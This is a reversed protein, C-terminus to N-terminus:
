SWDCDNGTYVIGCITSEAFVLGYVKTKSLATFYESQCLMSSNWLLIPIGEVWLKIDQKHVSGTRHFM